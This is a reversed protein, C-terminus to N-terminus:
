AAYTDYLYRSIDASEFMSTGTNPDVLYPVMMKGSKAVFDPRRRSKRGVNHLRYPIELNCLAERAIRCYPSTEFSYLELLKEPAKSPVARVRGLRPIGTAAARLTAIPGGAIASPARGNGYTAALYKVIQESEYMQRNENPDVLFPFQRKGGKEAVVNRFREGGPPCPYIVASLDLETLAERTKRCFPCSEFEYLELPKEPDRSDSTARWGRGLELITSAYSTAVDFTRNM